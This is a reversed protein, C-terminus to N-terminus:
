LIGKRDSTLLLFFSFLLLCVFLEGSLSNGFFFLAVDISSVRKKIFSLFACSTIYACGLVIKKLSHPALSISYRLLHVPTLTFGPSRLCVGPNYADLSTRKGQLLHPPTVKTRPLYCDPRYSHFCVQLLIGFTNISSIIASSIVLKFWLFLVVVCSCCCGCCGSAM